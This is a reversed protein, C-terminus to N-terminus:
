RGGRTCTAPRYTTTRGGLTIQVRTYVRYTGTCDPRVGYARVTVRRREGTALVLTARATAEPKGWNRWTVKTLGAVQSRARTDRRISCQRPKLRLTALASGDDGRKTCALRM